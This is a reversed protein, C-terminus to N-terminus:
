AAEAAQMEGWWTEVRMLGMYRYDMCNDMGIEALTDGSKPTGKLEVM